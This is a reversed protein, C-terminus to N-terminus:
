TEVQQADNSLEKVFDGERPQRPVERASGLWAAASTWAQATSAGLVPSAPVIHVGRNLDLKGARQLQAVVDEDVGSLYLRGGIEALDDAYSDLVEILTAGVRTRGRLRLVVVPRTAGSPSPLLEALTRAGAFFLSGYVGLVTVKNSPLRAPPQTEVFRGDAQPILACVAVDKASSALYLAVTLLVGAAVAQPISLVLTALFTVLIAWRSAGGTNWISRVERLDVASVGALIMLAALVTMPVQGVLDPALLVIALMWLGGLVGSWRSQAGVNVNLATQGVSGGAPIGSFLGSAANAVGQALMDRSPDVPSGDRNEVSQSVGAGQIAIVVAVAFASMVLDLTLLSPNPLTPIPIGRPIPSVDVVRQVGEWGM